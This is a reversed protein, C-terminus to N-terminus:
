KAEVLLLRAIPEGSAIESMRWQAWALRRLMALRGADTNDQKAIWGPMHSEVSIGWMLALVAAGSGWTIVRWCGALDARLDDITGRGAPHHRIRAGYTRAAGTPWNFPQRYRQPGIGRSALVVQEGPGTRFPELQVGLADWREPGGDPFMGAVNHYDRGITYWQGGQFGNGWTANETILVKCGAANFRDAAEGGDVHRNWSVFIDNDRKPRISRPVDVDVVNFGCRELGSRWAVRREPVGHRLNLYATKM